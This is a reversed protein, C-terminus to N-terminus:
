GAIIESVSKLMTLALASALLYPLCIQRQIYKLIRVPACVFRDEGNKKKLITTTYAKSPTIPNSYYKLTGESINLFNALDAETKINLFEQSRM